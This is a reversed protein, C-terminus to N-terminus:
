QFLGLFLKLNVGHRFIPRIMLINKKFNRRIFTKSINLILETTNHRFHRCLYTFQFSLFDILVEVIPGFNTTAGLSVQSPCEKM